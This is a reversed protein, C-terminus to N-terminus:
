AIALRSWLYKDKTDGDEIIKTKSPRDKSSGHVSFTAPPPTGANNIGEGQSHTGHHPQPRRTDSQPKRHRVKTINPFNPELTEQRGSGRNGRPNLSSAHNHDHRKYRYPLGRNDYDHEEYSASAPTRLGAGLHEGVPTERRAAPPTRTYFRM